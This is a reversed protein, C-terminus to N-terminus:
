PDTLRSRLAGVQTHRQRPSGTLSYQEHTLEQGLIAEVALLFRMRVYANPEELHRALKPLMEIGLASRSYAGAAVTRVMSSPHQLWAPGVPQGLEEGFHPVLSPSLEVDVGWYQQLADHTWLLSRDLHCLNCANPMGTALIEPESPSSIRHSRNYVTFGQVIRPMHCDLCSAQELSHRSHAQVAPGDQLNEHCEVCASLHESRDPAGAPPGATHTNHCLTCRIEGACAGRDQEAAEMSNVSASGDPWNDVAGVGSHHCQRCISNIVAPNKRAGRHDTPWAGLQPHTPVFRIPTSGDEAHERGGFHCSECSIGVTVFRDPPLRETSLLAVDSAERALAEVVNRDLGSEPSFGSVMGDGSFIRYLRMDYPYTNHCRACRENFPLREPTFPDHRLQGNPLHESGPYETPEMYSQPLWRQRDLSWSFRLRNEETYLPDGAPEPGLEQIGVYDQEYRWGIVRTIRIRRSVDGGVIHEVFFQDGERRFLAERGGYEIRLDSFDGLVADPTALQNMRSHPHQRWSDYNESHCNGCAEPGVYDQARINSYTPEAAVGTCVSVFGAASLLILVSRQYARV